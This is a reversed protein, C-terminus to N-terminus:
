NISIWNIGIRFVDNQLDTLSLDIKLITLAVMLSMRGYDVFWFKLQQTNM